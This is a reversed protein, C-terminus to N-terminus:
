NWDYLHLFRKMRQLSFGNKNASARQIISHIVIKAESIDFDGFIHCICYSWLCSSGFHSEIRTSDRDLYNTKNKLFFWVFKWIRIPGRSAQHSSQSKVQTLSSIWNLLSMYSSLLLFPSSAAAVSSPMSFLFPSPVFPHLIISVASEFLTQPKKHQFMVQRWTFTPLEPSDELPKINLTKHLGRAAM